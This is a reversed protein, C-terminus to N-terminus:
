QKRLRDRRTRSEAFGLAANLRWENQLRGEEFWKQATEHDFTEEENIRQELQRLYAAVAGKRASIMKAYLYQEMTIGPRLPKVGDYTQKAEELSDFVQLTLQIDGWIRNKIHRKLQELARRASRFRLSQLLAASGAAITIVSASVAIIRDLDINIPVM